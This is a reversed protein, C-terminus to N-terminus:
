YEEEDCCENEEAHKLRPPTGRKRTMAMAYDYLFDDHLDSSIHYCVAGSVFIDLLVFRAACGPLTHNYIKNVATASPVSHFWEDVSFDQARSMMADLIANQFTSDELQLALLYLDVLYDHDAPVSSADHGEENQLAAEQSTAFNGKNLWKIYQNFLDSSHVGPFITLLELM